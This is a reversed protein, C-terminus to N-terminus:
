ALAGLVRSASPLCSSIGKKGTERVLQWKGERSSLLGRGMATAHGNGAFFFGVTMSTMLCHISTPLFNGLM